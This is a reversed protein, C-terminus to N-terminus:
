RNIVSTSCCALIYPNHEILVLEEDQQIGNKVVCVPMAKVLINMVIRFRMVNHYINIDYIM